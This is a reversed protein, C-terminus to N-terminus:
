SAPILHNFVAEYQYGNSDRGIPVLFLDVEGLKDNCLHYMGQQIFPSAPGHFFASFSEQRATHLHETVDVLTLDVGASDPQVVHFPEHLLGDFSEKHLKELM